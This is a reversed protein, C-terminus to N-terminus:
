SMHNNKRENIATVLEDPLLPPNKRHLMAHCNPCVPVLDKLPNIVYGSGLQSVPVVHHVHIFQRGIEGYTREFNMGCITCDYGKAALCLKRNLPNREYRNTEVRQVDGETYGTKAETQVEEVPVIDALSLVMGILMSGWKYAEDPYDEGNEFVPMKTVHIQLNRWEEPWKETSNISIQSNNVRVEIKAGSQKILSAYAIFRNRSDEPQFAMSEIFQASYKEPLFDMYLRVRNRFSVKVTFLEKSSNKPGIIYCPEGGEYTDQVIFPIDYEAELRQRIGNTDM